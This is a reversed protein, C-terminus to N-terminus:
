EGASRLRTLGAVLTKRQRHAREYTLVKALQERSLRTARALVEAVTLGQYDRIPLHRDPADGEAKAERQAATEGFEARQKNVIRAAVEAERGPYRGDEEFEAKLKEYEDQREPSAGPLPPTDKKRRPM